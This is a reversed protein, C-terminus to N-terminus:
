PFARRAIAFNDRRAAYSDTHLNIVATIRDVDAGTVGKDALKHLGHLVWFGVASRIAGPFEAMTDPHAVFDVDMGPYLSKCQQSIAAYNARGTVQICGRGRFRWGDGSAIDGNGLEARGGYAKNAIVQVNAARRYRKTVPDRDASHGDVAAEAPHAKYYGFKLLADAGYNLNETLDSLDPGSEQRVQAFFHARRPNSDLGFAVPNLNLDAAITKLDAPDASPFVIKLQEATIPSAAPM